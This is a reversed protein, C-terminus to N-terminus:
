TAAKAEADAPKAAGPAGAVAGARLDPPLASQPLYMAMKSVVDVGTQTTTWQRAGPSAYLATAGGAVSMLLLWVFKRM